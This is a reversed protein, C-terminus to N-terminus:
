RMAYLPINTMQGQEKYPMLSYRLAKLEPHQSLLHTLPPRPRQQNKHLRLNICHIVANAKCKKPFRWFNGRFPAREHYNKNFILCSNGHLTWLNM